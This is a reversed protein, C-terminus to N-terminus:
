FDMFYENESIKYLTLKSNGYERLTDITVPTYKKLVGAKELKGKLWMGFIQLSDKSRLNKFYDGQTRMPIILGDDTYAYFDGKPYDPLSNIDNSSIIEIEYWPRPIIKGTQKNERGKGFYVNLNSSPKEAIRELDIEVKNLATNITRSHRFLKRYKEDISLSVVRKTGTNIVVNNIKESHKDFLTDLFNNVQAKQSRDIVEVTCEINGALGSPSFNSSGVFIRNDVGENFDYIKGHYRRGHAVYVGSNPHLSLSNHLDLCADLQKVSLGEYFAMGLMLQVNGYRCAIDELQTRYAQITHLSVYGSAIRVKKATVLNYELVDRFNGGHHKDLNTFM